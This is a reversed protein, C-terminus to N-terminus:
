SSGKIAGLPLGIPEVGGPINASDTLSPDGGGPQSQAQQLLQQQEQQLQEDTKIVKEADIDLSQAIDRLLVGRDV